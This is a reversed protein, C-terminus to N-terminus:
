GGLKQRLLRNVKAPDARGGTARMVEGVFHALLRTKGARYAEVNAVNNEIVRDVLRSLESENSIQDLGQRSVIAGPAEGTTVMERLIAKGTKGSIRGQEVLGILEALSEASVLCSDIASNVEKLLGLLGTTIWGVAQTPDTMKSAVAEFYDALARHATLM